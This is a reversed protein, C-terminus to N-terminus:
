KRVCQKLDSKGNLRDIVVMPKTAPKNGLINDLADFYVFEAILVTVRATRNSTDSRESEQVAPAIEKDERQVTSINNYLRREANAIPIPSLKVCVYCAIYMGQTTAERLFFTFM